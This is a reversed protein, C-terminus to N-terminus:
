KTHPEAPILTIPQTVIASFTDLKPDVDAAIIFRNM